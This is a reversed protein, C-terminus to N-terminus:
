PAAVEYGFVSIEAEGFVLHRPLKRIEVTVLDGSVIYLKMLQSAVLSDNTEVIGSTSTEGYKM